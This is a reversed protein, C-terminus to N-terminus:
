YDKVTKFLIYCFITWQCARDSPVNLVGRDMSKTFEGYKEFYFSTQGLRTREDLELDNRTIYGAIYVLSSKNEFSVSEELEELNRCM